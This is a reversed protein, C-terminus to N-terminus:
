KKLQKKLHLVFFFTSIKNAHRLSHHKQCQRQEQTNEFALDNQVRACITASMEVLKQELLYQLLKRRTMQRATNFMTCIFVCNPLQGDETFHPLANNVREFSLQNWARLHTLGIQIFLECLIKLM